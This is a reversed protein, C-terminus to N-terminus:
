LSVADYSTSAQTTAALSPGQKTPILMDTKTIGQIRILTLKQMLGADNCNQLQASFYNLSSLCSLYHPFMM